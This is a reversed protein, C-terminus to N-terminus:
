HEKNVALTAAADPELRSGRAFAAAFAEDGLRERVTAIWRAYADQTDPAQLAGITTRTADAAGFLTAARESDGEAGALMGGVDLGEALGQTQDIEAVLAFSEALMRRADGFEGREIAIRVLGRLSLAATHRGGRDRALALAEDFLQWADDLEGAALAVLALNSVVIDLGHTIEAERRISASEEYLERARALDHGFLALNGLNSLAAAIRAADGHERAATLSREFADRARDFDGKEGALMGLGNWARARLENPAAHEHALVEEYLALGIELHGHL